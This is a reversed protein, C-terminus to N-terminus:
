KSTNKRKPVLSRRMKWCSIIRKSIQTFNIVNNAKYSGCNMRSVYSVPFKKSERFFFCYILKKTSFSTKLIVELLNPHKAITEMCFYQLNAKVCTSNILKLSTKASTSCVMPYLKVSPNLPINLSAKGQPRRNLYFEITGRDLDLHVGVIVGRSYKQGYYKVRHNHQVLGRYSFGWSQDDIGLFSTYEYRHSDINVKDTGVGIM